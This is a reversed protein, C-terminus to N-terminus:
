KNKWKKENKMKWKENKMKKINKKWLQDSSNLFKSKIRMLNEWKEEAELKLKWKWKEEVKIEYSFGKTM